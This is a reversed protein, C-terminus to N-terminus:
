IRGIFRAYVPTKSVLLLLSVVGAVIILQMIEIGLNFGFVSWLLTNTSIPLNSLTASFALGHILGFGGAVYPEKGPFIPRVAHIASVLISFIILMEVPQEPLVLVRFTGLLLTLSHGITFASVIAILKRVKFRVPLLLIILFLLHDIGEAIHHMGMKVMGMFGNWWSGGKLDVVMPPVSNSGLDWGIVYAQETSDGHVVGTEWDTRVFALAVHNMVQHMVADYQVNFRRTSEDAYPKLAFEVVIEPYPINSTEYLGKDMRMSIIEVSWPHDKHVYASIHKLLYEELEPGPQISDGLVLTLEPLPIQAEMLVQGPSVDILLMSNPSPHSNAKFTLANLVILLFLIFIIRKM